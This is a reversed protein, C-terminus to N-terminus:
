PPLLRRRARSPQRISRSQGNWQKTSISLSGRASPRRPAHGCRTWRGPATRSCSCPTPPARPRMSGGRWRWAAPLRRNPAKLLGQEALALAEAKAAADAEAEEIASGLEDTSAFGENTLRQAQLRLGDQVEQRATAAREKMRETMARYLSVDFLGRLIELRARSDAALFREFQGQPLLVIQRFQRIDYGLLAELQRAVEGVRKEALITGCNTDSVQEVAVDTVDFLWALHPQATEGEGRQKPRSQDPQRRVLYRRAGLEFLLSVETLVDPAAHDSRMSAIPQDGRAGEGFLAFAMASFISSKGSGTPGYIGFLGADTAERFDVIETGGFPGFATMTLKIPRM